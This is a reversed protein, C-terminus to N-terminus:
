VERINYINEEGWQEDDKILEEMAIQAIMMNEFKGIARNNEYLIYMM